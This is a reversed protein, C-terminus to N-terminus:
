QVTSLVIGELTVRLTWENLAADDKKKKDAKKKKVLMEHHQKALLIESEQSANDMITLLILSYFSRTSWLSKSTHMGPAM